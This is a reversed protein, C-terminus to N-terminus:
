IHSIKKTSKNAYRAFICFKSKSPALSLGLSSLIKNAKSLAIELVSISESQPSLSSAIAVNDAYQSINCKISQLSDLESTYIAYLIPSLVSGQPLGRLAWRMEDVESFRCFIQRESVIYRIFNLMYPAIGILKLKHIVLFMIM